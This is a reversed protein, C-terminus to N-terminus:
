RYTFSVNPHIEHATIEQLLQTPHGLRGQQVDVCVERRRIRALNSLLRALHLHAFLARMCLVTGYM